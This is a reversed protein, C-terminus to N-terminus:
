EMIALVDSISSILIDLSPIMRDVNREIVPVGGKKRSFSILEDCANRIQQLQKDMHEMEQRDFQPINETM